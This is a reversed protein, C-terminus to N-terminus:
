RKTRVQLTEIANRAKILLVNREELERTKEEVLMKQNILEEQLSSADGDVGGSVLKSLRQHALWLCRADHHKVCRETCDGFASVFCM